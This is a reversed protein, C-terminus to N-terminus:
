HGHARGYPLTYKHEKKEQVKEHKRENFRIFTSTMEGVGDHKSKEMSTM